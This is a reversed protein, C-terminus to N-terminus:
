SEEALAAAIWAELADDDLDRPAKKLLRAFRRERKVAMLEPPTEPQSYFPDGEPPAPTIPVCQILWQRFGEDTSTDFRLEASGASPRTTDSKM